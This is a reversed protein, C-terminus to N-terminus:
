HDQIPTVKIAKRIGEMLPTYDEKNEENWWDAISIEGDSLVEDPIFDNTNKGDDFEIHCLTMGPFVLKRSQKILRNLNHPKKM